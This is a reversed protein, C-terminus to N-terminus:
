SDWSNWKARNVEPPLLQLNTDIHLGCVTAGKLPIVHDVHMGTLKAFEYVERIKGRDAWAPRQPWTLRRDPNARRWAYVSQKFKEPNRQRWDRARTSNYESRTASLEAVEQSFDAALIAGLRGKAM